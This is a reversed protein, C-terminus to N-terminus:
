LGQVREGYQVPAVINDPFVGKSVELPHATYNGKVNLLEDLEIEQNM